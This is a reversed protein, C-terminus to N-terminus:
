HFPAQQTYIISLVHLVIILLVVLVTFLSLVAAIAQNVLQLGTKFEGPVLKPENQLVLTQEEIIYGISTFNNKDVQIVQIVRETYGNTNDFSVHGSVGEFKHSYLTELIINSEETQGLGLGYSTLNVMQEEAKSMTLALTWIADFVLTAYRNTEAHASPDGLAKYGAQGHNYLEVSESYLEWYQDYTINASTMNNDERKLQYNVLLSGDIASLLTENSCSYTKGNYTFTVNEQFESISRGIWIWQYRPYVIQGYSAICMIKRAFGPGTLIFIVRIDQAVIDAIPFYTDYVSSTFALEADPIYLPLDAELAQYTSVFFTREEDYLVAIRKWNGKRMLVVTANVFGYSSGLIGVSYKFERRNEVLPTGALHLNLLAIESRSSHPSVALTSSSCGPGIIGLLPRQGREAIVRRVFSVRANDEIDCGGDSNILELTYGGLVDDRNNIMDVALYAAPLISTGQSWSPQQSPIESPYPLITLFFM